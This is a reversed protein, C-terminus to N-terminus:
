AEAKVVRLHAQDRFRERLPVIVQLRAGAVAQELKPKTRNRKGKRRSRRGFILAQNLSDEGFEARALERFAVESGAIQLPGCIQDASEFIDPVRSGVRRWFDKISDPTCRISSFRGPLLNGRFIDAPTAAIPS